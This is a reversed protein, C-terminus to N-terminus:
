LQYPEYGYHKKFESIYLRAGEEETKKYGLVTRGKDPLVLRVIFGSKHKTVGKYKNKSMCSKRKDMKGAAPHTIEIPKMEQDILNIFEGFYKAEAERRSKIADEINEFVGLYIDKYDVTIRAMWKKSAKHWYIGNHGSKNDTGRRANRVNEKPDCIRLNEKRNDLGNGNIHDVVKGKPPNLIFRHLDGVVSKAYIRYKANCICWNYKNVKEFDDDDVLAVMGRTLKLEKM